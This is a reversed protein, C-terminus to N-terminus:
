SENDQLVIRDINCPAMDQNIEEPGDAHDSSLVDAHDSSLVIHRSQIKETAEVFKAYFGNSEINRIVPDLDNSPIM